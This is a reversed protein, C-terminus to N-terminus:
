GQARPLGRICSECAVGPVPILPNAVDRVKGVRDGRKVRHRNDLTCEGSYIAPFTGTVEFDGEREQIDDPHSVGTGM